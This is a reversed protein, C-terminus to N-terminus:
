QNKHRNASMKPVEMGEAGESSALTYYLPFGLMPGFVKVREVSPTVEHRDLVYLGKFDGKGITNLDLPTKPDQGDILMVALAGGYLRGWKIAASLQGPLGTARYAKHLASIDGQKLSGRLDMPSRVMDEAVVEVMRGVIWSTRYMDLLESKNHTVYKGPSYGSRALLNDQGLGLRASVNDFGDATRIAKGSLRRPMRAPRVM